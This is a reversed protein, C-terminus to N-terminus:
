KYKDWPNPGSAKEDTLYRSSITNRMKKWINWVDRASQLKKREQPTLTDPNDKYKQYLNLAADLANQGEDTIEGTEMNIITRGPKSFPKLVINLDKAFLDSQAKATKVRDGPKLPEKDKIKQHTGLLAGKERESLGELNKGLVMAKEELGGVATKGTYPVPDGDKVISGGPGMKYQQIYMKGDHARFPKATANVQAIKAMAADADKKFQGYNLNTAVYNMLDKTSKFPMIGGTKSLVAIDKGKLNPDTEWKADNPNDSKVIIRVEDGNPYRENYLDAIKKIAAREDGADMLAKATDVERKVVEFKKKKERDETAWQHREERRGEEKERLGQLQEFEKARQGYNLGFQFSRAASKYGM